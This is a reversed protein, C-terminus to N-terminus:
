GHMKQKIKPIFNNMIPDYVENIHFEIWEKFYSGENKAIAVVSLENAFELKPEKLVVRVWNRIGFRVINSIKKVLPSSEIPM